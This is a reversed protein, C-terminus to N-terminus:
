LGRPPPFLVGRHTPHAVVPVGEMFLEHCRELGGRVAGVLGCLTQVVGPLGNCAAPVRGSGLAAQRKTPIWRMMGIAKGHLLRINSWTTVTGTGAM